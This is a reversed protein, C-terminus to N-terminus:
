SRMLRMAVMIAMVVILIVLIILLYDTLGMGSDSSKGQDVVTPSQTLNGTVSLVVYDAAADAMQPTITFTGGNAISQGNFTITVDGSFGPNITVEIKHDGVYAQPGYLAGTDNVKVGDIFVSMQPGVSIQVKGVMPDLKVYAAPTEGLNDEAIEIENQYEADSYWPTAPTTTEGTDDEDWVVSEYGTIDFEDNQLAAKVNVGELGYVTMYLEGNVYVAMAKATTQGDVISLNATDVSSGAYALIVATTSSAAFDVAGTVTGNVYMVAKDAITVSGEEGEVTSIALTGNVYFKSQLTIDDAVNMTGNIEVVANYTTDPSVTTGKYTFDAGEEITLTGDVIIATYKDKDAEVANGADTKMDQVTIDFTDPVVLTAGESIVLVNAKKDGFSANFALEVTGTAITIKGSPTAVDDSKGLNLTTVPAEGSEDTVTSITYGKAKDFAVSSDGATVAAGVTGTFTGDTGIEFGFGNLVVNGISVESVITIIEDENDEGAAFTLTGNYTIKGQSTIETLTASNAAAVAPALWFATEEFDGITGNATFAPIDTGSKNDVATPNVIMNNLVLVGADKESGPTTVAAEIVLKSNTATADITGDVTLEGDAKVTMTQGNLDIIFGAPITVRNEIEVNGFLDIIGATGKLAAALSTYMFYTEDADVFRVEADVCVGTAGTMGSTGYDQYKREEMSYDMLTGEVVIVGTGESVDAEEEITLTAGEAVLLANNITLEITGPITLDADVVYPMPLIKTGTQNVDKDIGWVQIEYVNDAVADTIAKSLSTVIFADDSNVYTAGYTGAPANDYELEYDQISVVGNGVIVLYAGNSDDDKLDVVALAEGSANGVSSIDVSGTVYLNGYINFKAQQGADKKGSDTVKGTESIEANAGPQVTLTGAAGVNLTGTVRVTGNIEIDSAKKSDDPDPYYLNNLAGAIAKNAEVDLTYGSQVTGSVDLVLAVAKSTTKASAASTGLFASIKESSVSFDFGQIVAEKSVTVVTKGTNDAVSIADEDSNAINVSGYTYIGSAAYASVSVNDMVSEIDVSAGAVLLITQDAMASPTTKTSKTQFTADAGIVIEGPNTTAASDSGLVLYTTDVTFSSTGSSTAYTITQTGNAANIWITLKGESNYKDDSDSARDGYKINAPKDKMGEDTIKIGFWYGVKGADNMHEVINGTIYYTTGDIKLGVTGINDNGNKDVGQAIKDADVTGPAEADPVTAGIIYAGKEVTFGGNIYLGLNSGYKTNTTDTVAGNELVSGTELILDGDFTVAAGRDIILEGGKEVKVDFDAPVNMKGAITLTVGEPIVLDRIVEVNTGADYYQPDTSKITGGLYTVDDDTAASVGNDSLMVATGAFVMALVAVLAFLKVGNTKNVNANM